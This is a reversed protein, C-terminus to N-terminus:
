IGDILSNTTGLGFANLAKISYLDVNPTIGVIGTNNKLAAIIGAVHTGHGNDDDYPIGSACENELSCFGGKVNLDRHETDIGSDLVAVKVGTGTYPLTLDGTARVMRTSAQESDTSKEYTRNLQIGSNPYNSKLLKMQSDTLNASIVSFSTYVKEIPIGKEQMFKVIETQNVDVIFYEEAKEDNALVSNQLSFLIMITVAIYMGFKRMGNM